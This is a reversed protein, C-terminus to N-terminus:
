AVTEEVSFKAPLNSAPARLSPEDPAPVYRAPVNFAPVTRQSVQVVPDHRLAVISDKWASVKAPM